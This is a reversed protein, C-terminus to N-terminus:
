FVDRYFRAFCIASPFARCVTAQYFQLSREPFLEFVQKEFNFKGQIYVLHQTKSYFRFDAAYLLRRQACCNAFDLSFQETCNKIKIHFNSTTEKNYLWNEIFLCLTEVFTNYLQLDLPLIGEWIFPQLNRKM